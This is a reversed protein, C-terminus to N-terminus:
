TESKTIQRVLEARDLPSLGGWAADVWVPRLAADTDPVGPPMAPTWVRLLVGGARRRVLWWGNASQRLRYRRGRHTSFWDRDDITDAHTLAPPEPTATGSQAVIV